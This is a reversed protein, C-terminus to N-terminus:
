IIIRRCGGFSKRTTLPGPIRTNFDPAISEYELVAFEHISCLYGNTIPNFTCEPTNDGIWSNNALIVGSTGFLTGSYDELIYNNRGTCLFNGCGGFWGIESKLPADFRGIADSDCSDCVTTWIYASGVLDPANGNPRFLYNNGCTELASESYTTRYNAFTM